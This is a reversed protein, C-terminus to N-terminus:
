QEAGEIKELADALTCGFRITKSEVENLRLMSIEVGLGWITRLFHRETRCEDLLESITKTTPEWEGKVTQTDWETPINLCKEILDPPTMLDYEYRKIVTKLERAAVNLRERDEITYANDTMKTDMSEILNINM